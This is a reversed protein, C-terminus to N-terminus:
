PVGPSTDRWTAGVTLLPPALGLPCERGTRTRPGGAWGWGALLMEEKNESSRPHPHPLLSTNSPPFLEARTPHAPLLGQLPPCGGGQWDLGGETRRQKAQIALPCAAQGQARPVARSTMISVAGAGPGEEGLSCHVQPKGEGLSSHQRPFFPNATGSEQTPWTARLLSRVGRPLHWCRPQQSLKSPSGGKEGHGSAPPLFHPSRLSLGFVGQFESPSELCHGAAGGPTPSLM